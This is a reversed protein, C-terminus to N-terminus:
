HKSVGTKKPSPTPPPPPATLLETLREIEADREAIQNKLIVIEADRAAVTRRLLAEGNPEVRYELVDGTKRQEVRCEPRKLAERIATDAAKVISAIKPATRWKGDNCKSVIELALAEIPDVTPTPKTPETKPKPAAPPALARRRENRVRDAAKRLAGKKRDEIARKEDPRGHVTVVRASEVATKPVELAKAAEKVKLGENSAKFDESRRDGGRSTTVMGAAVMAIQDTTMHRRHKNRSLSFLWPDGDHIVTMTSPDLGAMICALARNRGDLLEGAPTLTLTPDTVGNAAIDDSLAKLDAPSMEPWAACAPHLPWPLVSNSLGNNEPLPAALSM